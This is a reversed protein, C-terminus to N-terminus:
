VAPAAGEPTDVPGRVGFLHVAEPTAPWQIVGLHEADDPIERQGGDQLAYLVRSVPPAEALDEVYRVCPWDQVPIGPDEFTRRALAVDVIQANQPLQADISVPWPGSVESIADLWVRKVQVTKAMDLM